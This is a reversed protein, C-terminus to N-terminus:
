LRLIGDKVIRCVTAVETRSLHSSFPLAVTREAIRETVPFDGKNFGQKKYLPQLHIPPFYNNCGIGNSRLHELLADRDKESHQSSMHAVYVFWSIDVDEQDPAPTIHEALPSLEERYWEAIQQRQKVFDPLRKLQSLGLACNIDSIRYNFGLTRHELWTSSPDRGQNREMRAQAAIDDRDTVIMGGEGTTMQKNPYFAFTGCDGFTGAKKKGRASGLSECSDEVLALRHKKAITRLADWDALYGFVDVALIAKTKKTIAREVLAPDICFTRPEIDVFRPIAQEFLMCNASAVFSFPTTIVEDGLGIGLARICLHLASTGSSVAVAHKAGVFEAMNQEFEALKPGLSLQPTMLVAVVAQVDDESIDPCSLPIPM